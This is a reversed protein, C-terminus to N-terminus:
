VRSGIRLTELTVTRDNWRVVVQVRYLLYQLGPQEYDLQEDEYLQVHVSWSYNEDFEGYRDGVEIEETRGVTALISEAFLLARSYNEGTSAMNMGKGFIQLLVGLTLALIAFAVLIELLAFGRLSRAAKRSYGAIM